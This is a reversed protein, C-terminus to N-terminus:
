SQPIVSLNGLYISPDVGEGVIILKAGGYARSVARLYKYYRYADSYQKDASVGAMFEAVDAQAAAIKTYSDAKAANVSTDYQKEAGAIATAAAAQADLILKEADIEAGIMNQYVEAIDVPPHISELVVGVLEIGTDYEELRVKMDELFSKSFESRNVSLLDDLDTGITRETVLEYAKAELVKEPSSCNGLYAVLDDIRYELRLNISVLENGGGLLLRYEQSGHTSVWTNDGSENSRYGITMTNVTDTNKVVVRDIPWPLTMHLGPELTKECLKGLRYVAGTQYAEIQVVGTCLWFLLLSIVVTYPIIQKIMRMSWLSRMTIGTNKELYSLVGLERSKGISFPMPISIDPEDMFERRLVVVCLSLVIFVTIYVFIVALGINVYKLLDYFGLLKVVQAAAILILVIRSTGFATRINKLHAAGNKDNGTKVHACWKEFIIHTVFIVALIVPFLYNINYLTTSRRMMIWFFVHIGIATVAILVVSAAFRCRFYADVLWTAVSKVARACAPIAKRWWPKKVAEDATVAEPETRTEQKELPVAGCCFLATIGYILTPLLIALGGLLLPLYKTIYYLVILAAATIALWVLSVLAPLRWASAKRKNM